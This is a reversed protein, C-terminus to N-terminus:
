KMYDKFDPLPADFDESVYTFIHKGNGFRRVNKKRSSATNKLKLIEKIASTDKLKLIWEILELKQTEVTM